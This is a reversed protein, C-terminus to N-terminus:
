PITKLNTRETESKESEAAKPGKREREAGDAMLQALERAGAEKRRHLYRETTRLSAHGLGEKIALASAGRADAASAGSHRLSHLVVREGEAAHIDVGSELCAARFWYRITQEGYLKGSAPNVFVLPSGLVPPIAEIADLARPTLAVVRARRSKTKRASLEVVGDRGIKDRRLHRAENFRLMADVCCIIFARATLRQRNGRIVSTGQILKQIQPETLWTERASITKVGRTGRLPNHDILKSRVGFDLMEKARSLEINLTHDTPPRGLYTDEGKRFARHEAWTQETLGGAPRDGLRSILPALRNKIWKWSHEHKRVKAYEDFLVSLSVSTMEPKQLRRMEARMERLEALLEAAQEDSIPM